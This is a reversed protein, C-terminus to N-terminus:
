RTPAACSGHPVPRVPLEKQLRRKGARAQSTTSRPRRTSGGLPRFLRRLMTAAVQPGSRHRLEYRLLGAHRRGQPAFSSRSLNIDGCAFTLGSQHRAASTPATATSKWIPRHVPPQPRRKAPIRAAIVDRILSQEYADLRTPLAGHRAGHPKGRRPPDPAARGFARLDLAKSSIERERVEKQLDFLQVSLQGRYKKRLTPFEEGLLRDLGDEAIPPMQIVIFRSTLRKM